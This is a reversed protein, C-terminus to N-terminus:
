GRKCASKKAFKVPRKKNGTKCLCGGGKVIRCKKGGRSKRAM